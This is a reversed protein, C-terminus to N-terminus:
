GEGEGGGVGVGEGASEVRCGGLDLAGGWGSGGGVADADLRSCDILGGSRHHAQVMAM